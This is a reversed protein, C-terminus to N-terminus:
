GGCEGYKERFEKPPRVPRRKVLDFFIGFQKARAAITGDVVFEATLELRINRVASIYCRGVPRDFLTIPKIYDIETRLLIPSMNKAMLDELPLHTELMTLRLDELWRIYVINSVHGLADIDYTRVTINKEVYFPLSSETM